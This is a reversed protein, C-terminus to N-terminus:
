RAAAGAKQAAALRNRDHAAQSAAVAMQAGAAAQGLQDALACAQDLRLQLWPLIDAQLPDPLAVLLGTRGPALPDVRPPPQTVAPLGDDPAIGPVFGDRAAPSDDDHEAPPPPPLAAEGGVTAAVVRTSSTDPAATVGGPATSGAGRTPGPALAHDIHRIAVALEPTIRVPDLQERRLVLLGKIGSLQALFQYSRAQLQELETLPPRVARPEALSRQTAQVLASLADFAERRALRWALEPGSDVAKFQGLALAMRAHTAQSNVTRRILAPIQNREWSPLVYSFIWAVGAGIVTDAIRELMAFAPLDGGQLMHIQLLGLVTAAVATILYRRIAFAHAIAQSITIVILMEWAPPEASLLVMAIACGALTGAVRSNRREITQALSGRLVLVITLLIWYAHSAWPLALGVVYGTGIALSARIAHRLPPADWHWLTLFPRWSWDTPSVFLRWSARVLELNPQAEGTALRTMGLVEDNLHGLRNAMGRILAESRPDARTVAILGDARRRLEALLPRRDVMARPRTGLLLSDGIRDIQDALELFVQQMTALAPANAQDTRLTELDIESALLHDRIELVAVLMGALRQRRASRPSELVLDRTAQLQDALAAQAALLAGMLSPALERRDLMDSPPVFQRAELRLLRAVSALLDAVALARYRGNLLLNVGTAYLVYLAAGLLFQWSREVIEIRDTPAPLAMAFVMALMVAIAIPMGRKGWAMLSFAMFTAPVILLGLELHSGHLLQVAVYLPLALLPAPLMQRFKGRRSWPLDPPTAIIVGVAAGAAAQPDIAFAVGIAIILLGLGVSLGNLVHSSLAVRLARRLMLGPPHSDIAPM